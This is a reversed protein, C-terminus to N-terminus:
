GPTKASQVRTSAPQEPAASTEAVNAQTKQFGPMASSITALIEQAAKPMEPTKKLKASVSQHMTRGLEKAVRLIADDLAPPIADNFTKFAKAALPTAAPDQLALKSLLNLVTGITSKARLQFALLPDIESLETVAAEYHEHLKAPDALLQMVAPLVVIVQDTHEPLAAGLAKGIESMGVLTHRIELLDCLLGNLHKKRTERSARYRTLEGSVFGSILGGVTGAGLVSALYKGMTALDIM